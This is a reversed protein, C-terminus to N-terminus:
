NWDISISKVVNEVTKELNIKANEFVKELTSVGQM